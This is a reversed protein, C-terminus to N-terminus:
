TDIAYRGQCGRWYHHYTNAAQVLYGFDRASVWYLFTTMAFYHRNLIDSPFDKARLIQTAQSLLERKRVKHLQGDWQYSLEDPV